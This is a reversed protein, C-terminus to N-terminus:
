NKGRPPPYAENKCPLTTSMSKKGKTSTVRGLHTGMQPPFSKRNKLNIKLIASLAM